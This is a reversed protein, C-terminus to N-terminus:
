RVKKGSKPDESDVAELSDIQEIWSDFDPTNPDKRKLSSWALYAMDEIGAGDALNGIKKKTHKEWAIFDAVIATATQESGDAMTMKLQLRM